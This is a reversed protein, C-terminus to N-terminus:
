NMHTKYAEASEEKPMKIALVLKSAGIFAAGIASVLLAIINLKVM